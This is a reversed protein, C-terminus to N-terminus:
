ARTDAEQAQPARPWPEAAAGRAPENSRRLLLLTLDDDFSANATHAEVRALLRTRLAPLTDGRGETLGAVISWTDPCACPNTLADGYRQWM